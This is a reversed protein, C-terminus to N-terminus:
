KTNADAQLACRSLVRVMADREAPTIWLNYKKKVAIQRKVYTCRFAKNPPLWSAADGDSKQENAAGDVALLNLSDNAFRVREEYVLQQAGTQWANSLAVVHDIQVDDSTTAGKTFHILKGTYPDQLEGSIVKCDDDVISNRLDRALVKNRMTCGLVTEWGNGFESREYNTKPARGKVPLSELEADLANSAADQFILSDLTPLELVTNSLPIAAVAAVILVAIIRRMRYVGM